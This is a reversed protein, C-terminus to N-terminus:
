AAQEKEKEIEAYLLFKIYPAMKLGKRKAIDVIKAKQEADIEFAIIQKCAM